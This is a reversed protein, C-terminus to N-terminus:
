LKVGILPWRGIGGYQVAAWIVVYCFELSQGTINGHNNPRVKQTFIVVYCFELSQGTIDGHNNPRLKQTFSVM